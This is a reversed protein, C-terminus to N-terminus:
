RRVATATIALTMWRGALGKSATLGHEYRDVRATGRLVLGDSDATFEEVDVQLPRTVGHATLTGTATGAGLDASALDVVIEPYREVDLFKPQQVHEDRTPNGSRFSSADIVARATSASWPEAVVVEGSTLQFTARVGALGFMHKARLEITTRAPDLSYTGPTPRSSVTTRQETPSHRVLAASSRTM